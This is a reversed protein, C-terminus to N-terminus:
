PLLRRHRGVHHYPHTRDKSDTGLEDTSAPKPPPRWRRILRRHEPLSTSASPTSVSTALPLVSVAPLMALAPSLTASDALLPVSAPSLTASDALHSVSAASHTASAASLTASDALHSVAAPSLTASDALHSVSAPSLTASTASLTASTASLTASHALLLVSDSLLPVPVSLLSASKTDEACADECLTIDSQTLIVGDPQGRSHRTPSLPIHDGADTETAKVADSLTDWGELIRRHATQIDQFTGPSQSLWTTSDIAIEAFRRFCLLM